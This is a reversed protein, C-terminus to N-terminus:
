WKVLGRFLERWLKNCKRAVVLLRRRNARTVIKGEEPPELQM